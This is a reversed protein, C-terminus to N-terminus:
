NVLQGIVGFKLFEIIQLHTSSKQLKHHLQVNFYVNPFSVSLLIGTQSGSEM